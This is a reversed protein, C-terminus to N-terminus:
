NEFPNRIVDHVGVRTLVDGCDMNTCISCKETNALRDALLGVLRGVVEDDGEGSCFFPFTGKQESGVPVLLERINNRSM